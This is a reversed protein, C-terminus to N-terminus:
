KASLIAIMAETLMHQLDVIQERTLLAGVGPRGNAPDTMVVLALDDSHVSVRIDRAKSGNPMTHVPLHSEFITTPM